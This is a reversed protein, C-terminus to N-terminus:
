LFTSLTTILLYGLLSMSHSVTIYYGLPETEIYLPALGCYRTIRLVFAMSGHVVCGKEKKWAIKSKM